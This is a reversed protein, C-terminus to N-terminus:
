CDADKEGKWDVALILDSVSELGYERLWEPMGMKKETLRGLKSLHVGNLMPSKYYFFEWLEWVVNSEMLTLHENREFTRKLRKLVGEYDDIALKIYADLLRNVGLDSYEKSPVIHEKREEKEYEPCEFIKYSEFDKNHGHGKLIIKDAKWGTIPKLEWAWQCQNEVKGHAHRCSWCLTDTDERAPSEKKQKPKVKRPHKNSFECYGCSTKRGKKVDSGLAEFTRGCDCRFRYVCRRHSDMGLYTEATVNGFRDGLTITRDDHRPYEFFVITYTGNTNRPRGM